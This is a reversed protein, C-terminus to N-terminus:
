LTTWNLQSSILKMELVNEDIKVMLLQQIQM